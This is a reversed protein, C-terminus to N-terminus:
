VVVQELLAIMALQYIEVLMVKVNLFFYKLKVCYYCKKNRTFWSVKQNLYTTTELKVLETLLQIYKLYM